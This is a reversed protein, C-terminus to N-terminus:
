VFEEVFVVDSALRKVSGLQDLIFERQVWIPVLWVSDPERTVGTEM